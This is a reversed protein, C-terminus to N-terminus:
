KVKKFLVFRYKMADCTTPRVKRVEGSAADEKGKVFSFLMVVGGGRNFLKGCKSMVGDDESSRQPPENPILALRPPPPFPPWM